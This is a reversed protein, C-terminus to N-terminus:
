VKDTLDVVIFPGYKNLYTDFINKEQAKHGTSHWKFDDGGDVKVMTWDKDSFPFETLKYWKSKVWEEYSNFTENPTLSDLIRNTADDEIMDSETSWTEYNKFKFYASGLLSDYIKNFSTGDIERGIDTRRTSELFSKIYKM